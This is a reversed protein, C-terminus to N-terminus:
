IKMALNFAKNWGNKSLEPDFHERIVNRANVGIEFCREKDELLKKTKDVMEQMNWAYVINNKKEDFLDKYVNHGTRLAVVPLGVAMAELPSRDLKWACNFYVQHSQLTQIMDEESEIGRANPFNQDNKAIVQIPVAYYADKLINYGKVDPGWGSFARTAITIASKTTPNYGKFISIDIPHPRVIPIGVSWMKSEEESWYCVPIDKLLIALTKPDDWQQPVQDIHFVCPKDHQRVSQVREYTVAYGVDIKDWPIDNWPTIHANPPLPRGTFPYNNDVLYFQHEPLATYMYYECFNHYREM